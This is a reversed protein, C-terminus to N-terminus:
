MLNILHLTLYTIYKGCKEQKGMKRLQKVQSLLEGYEM